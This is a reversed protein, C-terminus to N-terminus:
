GSAEGTILTKTVYDVYREPAHFQHIIVDKIM